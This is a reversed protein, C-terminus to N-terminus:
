FFTFQSLDWFSLESLEFESLVLCYKPFFLKVGWCGILNVRPLTKHDWLTFFFTKLIKKFIFELFYPKGSKQTHKTKSQLNKSTGAWPSMTNVFVWPLSISEHYQCCWHYQSLGMTYFRYAQILFRVLPCTNGTQPLGSCCQSNYCVCTM